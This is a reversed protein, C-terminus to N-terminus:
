SGIDLSLSIEVNRTDAGATCKEQLVCECDDLFEFKCEIIRSNSQEPSQMKPAEQPQRPVELSQQQGVKESRNRREHAGQERSIHGYYHRENIQHREANLQGRTQKQADERGRGKGGRKQGGRQGGM